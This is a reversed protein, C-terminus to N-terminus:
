QLRKLKAKLRAKLQDRLRLKAEDTIDLDDLLDDVDIDEAQDQTAEAQDQEEAQLLPPEVNIQRLGKRVIAKVTEHQEKPVMEMSKNIAGVTCTAFRYAEREKVMDQFLPPM